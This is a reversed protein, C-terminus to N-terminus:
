RGQFVAARRELFSRLSQKANESIGALQVAVESM